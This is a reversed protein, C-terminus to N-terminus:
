SWGPWGSMARKASSSQPPPTIGWSAPAQPAPPRGWLRARAHRETTPSNNSEEACASRAGPSSSTSSDQPTTGMDRALSLWVRSEAGLGVNPRSTSGIPRASRPALHRPRGHPVPPAASDVPATAAARKVRQRRQSGPTRGPQAGHRVSRAARCDVGLAEANSARQRTSPQRRTVSGAGIQAYGPVV